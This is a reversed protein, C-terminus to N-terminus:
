HPPSWSVFMESYIFMMDLPLFEGVTLYKM